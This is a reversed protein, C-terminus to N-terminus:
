FFLAVHFSKNVRGCRKSNVDLLGSASVAWNTLNIRM